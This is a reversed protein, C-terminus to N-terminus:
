KFDRERPEGPLLSIVKFQIYKLDREGPMLTSRELDQVQLRPSSPGPSPRLYGSGHIASWIM